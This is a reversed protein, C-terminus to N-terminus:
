PRPRRGRRGAPPPRGRGAGANRKRSLRGRVPAPRLRKPFLGCREKGFRASPKRFGPFDHFYGTNGVFKHIIFSQKVSSRGHFFSQTSEDRRYAERGQGRCAFDGEGEREIGLVHGALDAAGKFFHVQGAGDQRFIRRSRRPQRRLVDVHQDGRAGGDGADAGLAVFDPQAVVDGDQGRLGRLLAAARAVGEDGGPGRGIRDGALNGGGQGGEGAFMRHAAIREDRHPEVGQAVDGGRLLKEQRRLQPQGHGIGFGLRAQGRGGRLARLGGGPHPIQDDVSFGRLRERGRGRAAQLRVGRRLIEDDRAPGARVREVGEHLVARGAEGGLHQRDFGDGVGVGPGVRRGLDARADRIVVLVVAGEVDHQAAVVGEHGDAAGLDGHIGLDFRGHGGVEVIGAQVAVPVGVAVGDVALDGVVRVHGPLDDDAADGHAGGRLGGVVDVLENGELGSRRRVDRLFDDEAAHDGPVGIGAGAPRGVVDGGVAVAREAVRGM